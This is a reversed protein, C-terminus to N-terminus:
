VSGLGIWFSSRMALWELDKFSYPSLTFYAITLVVGWIFLVAGWKMDILYDVNWETVKTHSDLLM